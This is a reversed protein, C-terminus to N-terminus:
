VSILSDAFDLVPSGLKPNLLTLRCKAIPNFVLKQFKKLQLLFDVQLKRYSTFLLSSLQKSNECLREGGFNLTIQAPVILM